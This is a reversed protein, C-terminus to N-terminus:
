VRRAIYVLGGDAKPDEECVIEVMRHEPATAWAMAQLPDTFSLETFDTRRGILRDVKDKISTIDQRLERAVAVQEGRLTRALDDMEIRLAGRTECFEKEVEAESDAAAECFEEVIELRRALERRLAAEAKSTKM